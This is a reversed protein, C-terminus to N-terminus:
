ARTVNIRAPTSGPEGPYSKHERIDLRSGSPWDATREVLMRLDNLSLDGEIAVQETTKMNSRRMRNAAADSLAAMQETEPPAM